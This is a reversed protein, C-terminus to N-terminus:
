SRRAVGSRARAPALARPAGDVACALDELVGQMKELREGTPALMEILASDNLKLKMASGALFHGVMSPQRYFHVVNGSM